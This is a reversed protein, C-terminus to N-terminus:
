VTKYKKNKISYVVDIFVIFFMVALITHLWSFKHEIFLDSCVDVCKFLFLAGYIWGLAKLTKLSYM